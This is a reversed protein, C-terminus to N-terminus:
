KPMRLALLGDSTEVMRTVIALVGVHGLFKALQKPTLNSDGSERERFTYPVEVVGGYDAKALVELLIKYGIPDLDVNRVVQRRVAFFGSLPDSLRRATPVTARALLTAGRSLIRRVLSWGDVGGGRTYRSGVAVDVSPDDFASLLIPLMEPPHQLDGDIVTCIENTAVRFGRSVATALGRDRTRRIVRVADNGDFRDMAVRWTGDESDDDVVLIETETGDLASLCRQVVPVVNARENYTPVVVSVSRSGDTM